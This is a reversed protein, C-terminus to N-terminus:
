WQLLEDEALMERLRKEIIKDKNKERFALMEKLRALEQELETVKEARQTERLNFLETLYSKLDAKIQSKRTEDKSKRYEHALSRCDRELKLQKKLKNYRVPDEVKFKVLRRVDDWLKALKEEYRAPNKLKEQQLAEIEDPEEAKIKELIIKEWDSGWERKLGEINRAPPRQDQRKSKDRRPPKGRREQALLNSSLFLLIILLYGIVKTLSKM